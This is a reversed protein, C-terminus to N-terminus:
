RSRPNPDLHRNNVVNIYFESTASDPDGPLLGMAITGRVNFLGNDGENKIAPRNKKKKMGPEFGGGQNMFDPIVRHFLTNDYFKDDVYQLFNRVTLPAKGPYLGIEITGMSTEMVVAQKFAERNEEEEKLGDEDKEKPKKRTSEKPNGCAALGLLAVAVA